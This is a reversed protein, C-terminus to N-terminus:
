LFPYRPLATAQYDAGAITSQRHHLLHLSLSLAAFNFQEDYRRFLGDLQQLVVRLVGVGDQVYSASHTTDGASRLEISTRWSGPSLPVSNLFVLAKGKPARVSRM